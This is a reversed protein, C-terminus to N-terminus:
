REDVNLMGGGTASTRRRQNLLIQQQKPAWRDPNISDLIHRAHHYVTGLAGIVGLCQDRASQIGVMCQNFAREILLRCTQM